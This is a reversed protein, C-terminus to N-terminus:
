KCLKGLAGLTSGIELGDPSSPDINQLDEALKIFEPGLKQDLEEIRKFLGETKAADNNQEAEDMQDSLKMAECYAQVKASNSSIIKVVKQVDAKLKETSPGQALAASATAASVLIVVILKMDMFGWVGIACAVVMPGFISWGLASKPYNCPGPFEYRILNCLKTGSGAPKREGGAPDKKPVLNCPV